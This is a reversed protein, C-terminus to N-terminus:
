QQGETAKVPSPDSCVFKYLAEGVSGPKVTDKKSSPTLASTNGELVKNASDYAATRELLLLNQNCDVTAFQQVYATPRPLSYRKIFAPANAPVIKVWLQYEGARVSRIGKSFLEFGKVGEIPTGLKSWNSAAPKETTVPKPDQGFVPIAFALFLLIAFQKMDVIHELILTKAVKAPRAAAQFSAALLISRCADKSARVRCRGFRGGVM